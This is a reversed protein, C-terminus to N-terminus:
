LKILFDRKRIQRGRFELNKKNGEKNVEGELKVNACIKLINKRCLLFIESQSPM